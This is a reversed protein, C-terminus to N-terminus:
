LNEKKDKNTITFKYEYLNNDYELYDNIDDIAARMQTNCHNLIETRLQEWIRRYEYEKASLNDKFDGWLFGFFDEIRALSGIMSTEFRKRIQKQINQKM